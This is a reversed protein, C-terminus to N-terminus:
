SSPRTNSPTATAFLKPTKESELLKVPGCKVATATSPGPFELSNESGASPQKRCQSGIRIFYATGAARLQVSPRLGPNVGPCADPSQNIRGYVRGQTVAEFLFARAPNARAQADGQFITL